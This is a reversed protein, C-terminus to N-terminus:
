RLDRIQEDTARVASMTIGMIANDEFTPERDLPM